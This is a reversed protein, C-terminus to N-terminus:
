LEEELFKAMAQFYPKYLSVWYTKAKSYIREMDKLDRENVLLNASYLFSGKTDLTEVEPSIYIIFIERRKEIPLKELLQNIEKIKEAKKVGAMFNRIELVTFWQYFENLNELIKLETEGELFSFFNKFEGELEWYILSVPKELLLDELQFKM